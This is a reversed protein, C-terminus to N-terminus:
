AVLASGWGKLLAIAGAGVTEGVFLTFYASFMMAALIGPAAVRLNELIKLGNQHTQKTTNLKQILRKEQMVRMSVM